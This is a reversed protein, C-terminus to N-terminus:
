VAGLATGSGVVAVDVVVSGGITAVVADMKIGKVSVGPLRPGSSTEGGDDGTGGGGGGLSM